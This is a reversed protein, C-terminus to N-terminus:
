FPPEGCCVHESVNDKPKFQELYKVRWRLVDIENDKGRLVAKLQEVEPLSSHLNTGCWPCTKIPINAQRGEINVVLEDKENICAITGAEGFWIAGQGILRHEDCYKCM